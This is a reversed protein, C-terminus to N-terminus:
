AIPNYKWQLSHFTGVEYFACGVLKDGNWFMRYFAKDSNGSFYAVGIYGGDLDVVGSGHWLNGFVSVKSGKVKVELTEDVNGNQVIFFHTGDKKLPSPLLPM